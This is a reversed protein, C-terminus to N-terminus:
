AVEIGLARALLAVDPNVKAKKRLEDLAAQQDAVAAEADKARKQAAAQVEAIQKVEEETHKRYQEEGGACDVDLHLSM